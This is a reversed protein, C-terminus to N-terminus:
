ILATRALAKRGSTTALVRTFQVRQLPNQAREAEDIRGVVPERAIPSEHERSVHAVSSMQQLHEVEDVAQGSLRVPEPPPDHPCQAVVIEVRVPFPTLASLIGEPVSEPRFDPLRRQVGLSVGPQDHCRRIEVVGLQEDVSADKRVDDVDRHAFLARASGLLNGGVHVFHKAAREHLSLIV